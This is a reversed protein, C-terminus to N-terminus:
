DLIASLVLDCWSTTAELSDRHVMTVNGLVDLLPLTYGVSDAIPGLGLQGPLFEEVSTRLKPGVLSIKAILHSNLIANSAAYLLSGDRDTTLWFRDANGLRPTQALVEVTGAHPDVRVLRLMDISSVLAHDVLWLHADNLVYGAALVQGLPGGVLPIQRWPLGLPQAWVDGLIAGNSTATGGVVYVTNEVRSFVAQFGTRAVPTVPSSALGAGGSAESGLSIGNGGAIATDLVRTADVSLLVATASTRGVFPTSEAANIWRTTTAAITARFRASMFPTVDFGGRPTFVYTFPGQVLLPLVRNREGIAAEWFPAPDGAPVYRVPGEIVPAMVILAHTV